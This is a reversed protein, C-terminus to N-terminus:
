PQAVKAPKSSSSAAGSGSSSDHTAGARLTVLWIVLLTVLAVSAAAVAGRGLRRVFDPWNARVYIRAGIAEQEEMEIQGGVARCGAVVLELEHSGAKLPTVAFSWEAVNRRSDLIQLLPSRPEIRFVGKPGFLQAAISASGSADEARVPAHSRLSSFAPALAAGADPDRLIRVAVIQSELARMAPRPNYVLRGLGSELALPEAEALPPMAETAAPLAPGAERRLFSPIDFHGEAESPREEARAAAAFDATRRPEARTAPRAESERISAAVPASGADRMGGALAARGAAPARQVILPAAAKEAPRGGGGASAARLAAAIRQADGTSRPETAVAQRRGPAPRQKPRPPKRLLLLLVIALAAGSAVILAYPWFEVLQM